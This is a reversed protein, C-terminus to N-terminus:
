SGALTATAHCSLGQPGWARATVTDYGPLDPLTRDIALAGSLPTTRASGKWAVRREHVLAVRWLVGAHTHEIEFELEIAGSDARLRLKAEASGTCDGTVRVEPRDDKGDRALSPAVAVFLSAALAAAVTVAIRATPLVSM